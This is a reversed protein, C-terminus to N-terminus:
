RKNCVGCWLWHSPNGFFLWSFYTREDVPRSPYNESFKAFPSNPNQSTMLQDISWNCVGCEWGLGFIHDSVTLIYQIKTMRYSINAPKMFSDEVWSIIRNVEWSSLIWIAEMESHRAGIIKDNNAVTVVREKFQLETRARRSLNELM